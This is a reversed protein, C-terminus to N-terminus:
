KENARISRGLHDFKYIVTMLVSIFPEIFTVNKLQKITEPAFSDRPTLKQRRGSVLSEESPVRMNIIVPQNRHHSYTRRLSKVRKIALDSSRKNGVEPSFSKSLNKM